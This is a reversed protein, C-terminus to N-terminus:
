VAAEFGGSSGISGYWGGRTTCAGGGTSGPVEGEGGNVVTGGGLGRCVRVCGKGEGDGMGVGGRAKKWGELGMGGTDIVFGKAIITM